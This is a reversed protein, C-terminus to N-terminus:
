STQVALVKLKLPLALYNSTPAAALATANSLTLETGSVLLRSISNSPPAATIPM